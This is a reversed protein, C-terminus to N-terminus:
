RQLRASCGHAPPIEPNEAGNSDGRVPKRGAKGYSLQEQATRCGMGRGCDAYAFSTRPRGKWSCDSPLRYQFDRCCMRFDRFDIRYWRNGVTWDPFATRFTLCSRCGITWAAFRIPCGPGPSLLCDDRLCSACDARRGLCPSCGTCWHRCCPSRCRASKAACGRRRGTMWNRCTRRTPCNRYSWRIPGRTFARRWKLGRIM